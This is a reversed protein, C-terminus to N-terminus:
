DFHGVLRDGSESIHNVWEPGTCQGSVVPLCIHKIANPAVWLGYVDNLGYYRWSVGVTQLLDSLTQREFCPFTQAFEVGQPNILEVMTTALAACGTVAGTPTNEAAFIGAHDDAKTPASSAGFIFQHAPFSPGQNTQFMYNAWGYSTALDLYPQLVGTSNDIYAFQPRTPCTESIVSCYIHAAGDM